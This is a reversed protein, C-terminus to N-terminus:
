FKKQRRTPPAFRDHYGSLDDVGRCQGSQHESFGVTFANGIGKFSDLKISRSKKWELYGVNAQRLETTM